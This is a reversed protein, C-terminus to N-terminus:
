LGSLHGKGQLGSSIVELVLVKPSYIEPQEQRMGRGTDAQWQDYCSPVWTSFAWDADTSDMGSTNSSHVDGVSWESEAETWSM